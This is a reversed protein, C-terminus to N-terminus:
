IVKSRSESKGILRLGTSLQNNAAAIADEVLHRIHIVESVVPRWIFSGRADQRIWSRESRHVCQAIGSRECNLVAHRYEAAGGIRRRGVTRKRNILVKDGPIHLVEVHVRLVLKRM